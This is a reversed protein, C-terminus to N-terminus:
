IHFILSYKLICDACFICECGINKKKAKKGCECRKHKSKKISKNAKKEKSKVNENEKEKENEKENENEKKNPDVPSKEENSDVPFKEYLENLHKKLYEKSIPKGCSCVISNISENTSIAKEMVRNKNNADICELVIM